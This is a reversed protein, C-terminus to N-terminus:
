RAGPIGLVSFGACCVLQSLVAAAASSKEKSKGDWFSPEAEQMLDSPRKKEKKHQEEYDVSHDGAPSGQGARARCVTGSVFEATGVVYDPACSLKYFVFAEM